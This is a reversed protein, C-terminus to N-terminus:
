GFLVEACEGAVAGCQPVVLPGGDLGQDDVAPSREDHL